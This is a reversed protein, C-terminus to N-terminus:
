KIFHHRHPRGPPDPMGAAHWSEWANSYDRLGGIHVYLGDIKQDLAVRHNRDAARDERDQLRDEQGQDLLMNLREFPDARPRLKNVVATGIGAVAALAAVIIPVLWPGFTLTTEAPTM